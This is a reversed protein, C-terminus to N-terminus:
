TIAWRICMCQFGVSQLCWWLSSCESSKKRPSKRNDNTYLVPVEDDAPIEHLWLKGAVIIYLIFIIALPLYDIVLILSWFALPSIVTDDFFCVGNVPKLAVPVVSMLAISSIWVVLTIIKPKRFWISSRFPYVVAFFRDFAM